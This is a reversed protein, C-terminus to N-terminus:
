DNAKRMERQIHASAEQQASGDAVPWRGIAGCTCTWRVGNDHMNITTEHEPM